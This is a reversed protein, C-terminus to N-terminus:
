RATHTLKCLAARTQVGTKKYISTIHHRLTSVSIQLRRAIVEQKDDTLVLERLVRLESPTIGCSEQVAAFPDAAEEAAPASVNLAGSFAMLVIVAALAAINILLVVVQPQSSLHLGFSIIVVASDLMRGMCAWLAPRKANAALRLFTLHYFAIVATIAVYYLCMNLLYTESGLLATNLFAVAAVCLTCVPLLRGGRSDGLWGFLLVTPVMLLRPLSYVNYDTYGSAIQLHHIYGNYFSTFLLLAVTIGAGFVPASLPLPKKEAAPPQQPRSDQLLLAMWAFSLLLFVAIAPTVTWQLQLVYQLVVALAYGAGVSIGLRNSNGASLALREYVRGGIFGTLVVSVATVVLYLLSSPPCFLMVAAGTLCLALAAATVPKVAGGRKESFFLASGLFGVIAAVQAFLYVYEQQAPPLFGRGAQNALRLIVFQVFMFAAFLLTHARRTNKLLVRVCKKRKENKTDM